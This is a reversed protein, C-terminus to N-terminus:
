KKVCIHQEIYTNYKEELLVFNCCREKITVFLKDEAYLKYLKKAKNVVKIKRNNLFNIQEKLLKVYKEEKDDNLDMLILESKPTPIMNNLNVVGLEGDKIKYIDPKNDKMLKHKPKPSSLPAFYTINNQYFVIGIYPRAGNKNYLVKKDFQSIFSIYEETIHYLKFNEM